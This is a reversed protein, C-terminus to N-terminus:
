RRGTSGPAAGPPQLVVAFRADVFREKRYDCAVTWGTLTEPRNVDALPFTFAGQQVSARGREVGETDLLRATCNAGTFILAGSLWVTLTSGHDAVPQWRYEIQVSLQKMLGLEKPNHVALIELSAFPIEGTWILAGPLPETTSEHGTGLAASALESDAPVMESWGADSEGVGMNRKDPNKVNTGLEPFVSAVVRRAIARADFLPVDRARASREDALRVAQQWYPPFHDSIADWMDALVVPDIALIALDGPDLASLGQELVLDKCNEAFLAFHRLPRSREQLKGLFDLYVDRFECDALVRELGDRLTEIRGTESNVWGSLKARVEADAANRREMEMAALDTVLSRFDPSLNLTAAM